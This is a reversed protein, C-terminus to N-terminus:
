PDRLHHAAARLPRHRRPQVARHGAQAEGRDPHHSVTQGDLMEGAAIGYMHTESPPVEMLAVVGLGHKKYANALQLIGPEEADILDDGLMVAFPEDGVVHRACLVAHGLGLPEKQRVSIINAMNSIARLAQAEGTKNRARLTAELEFAM